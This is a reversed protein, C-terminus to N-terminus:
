LKNKKKCKVNGLATFSLELQGVDKGFNQYPWKKQTVNAIKNYTYHCKMTTKIHKCKELPWHHQAHKGINMAGGYIM